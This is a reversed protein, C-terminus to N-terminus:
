RAIRMMPATTMPARSDARHSLRGEDNKEHSDYERKIQEARRETEVKPFKIAPSALRVQMVVATTAIKEWSVIRVKLSV